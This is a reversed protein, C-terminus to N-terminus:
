HSDRTSGLTILFLISTLVNMMESVSPLLDQVVITPFNRGVRLEQFSWHRLVILLELDCKYM